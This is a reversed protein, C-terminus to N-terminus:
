GCKILHCRCITRSGQILQPWAFMQVIWPMSRQELQTEQWLSLHLTFARWSSSFLLFSICTTKHLHPWKTRMRWWRDSGVAEEGIVNRSARVLSKVNSSAKTDFPLPSVAAKLTDSLFEGRHEAPQLLGCCFLCPPSQKEGYMGWNLSFQGGGASTGNSRTHCYCFLSELTPELSPMEFMSLPNWFLFLWCVQPITRLSFLFRFWYRLHLLAQTSGFSMISTNVWWLLDIPAGSPMVALLSTHYNVIHLLSTWQLHSLFPKSLGATFTNLSVWKIECGPCAWVSLSLWNSHKM